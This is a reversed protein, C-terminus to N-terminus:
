CSGGDTVDVDVVDRQFRPGDSPGEEARRGDLHRRSRPGPLDKLSIFAWGAGMRTRMYGGQTGLHDSSGDYGVINWETGEEGDEPVDSRMEDEDEEGDEM